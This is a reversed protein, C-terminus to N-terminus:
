ATPHGDLVRRERLTDENPGTALVKGQMSFLGHANRCWCERLEVIALPDLGSEAIRGTRSRQLRIALDALNLGNRDVLTAILRGEGVLVTAGGGHQSPQLERLADAAGTPWEVADVIEEKLQKLGRIQRCGGIVEHGGDDETVVVIPVKQGDGALSALLRTEPRPDAARLGEYSTRLHVIELHLV